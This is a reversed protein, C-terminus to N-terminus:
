RQLDIREVLEYRYIICDETDIGEAAKSELFHWIDIQRDCELIFRGTPVHM